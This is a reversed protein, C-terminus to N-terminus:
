LKGSFTEACRKGSIVAGEIGASIFAGACMIPGQTFEAEADKLSKYIGVTREHDVHEWRHLNVMDMEDKLDGMFPSVADLANRAIQSDDLGAQSQAWQETMHLAILGKGEPARDPYKNHEVAIAIVDRAESSPVMILAAPIDPWSKLGVHITLSPVAKIQEFWARRKGSISPAIKLAIEPALAIVAGDFERTAGDITVAVGNESPEVKEVCTNLHLNDLQSAIKESLAGMGGNVQIIKSDSFMKLLWVIDVASSVTTSTFMNLRIIPDVMFDHIERGFKRMAFSECNELDLQELKAMGEFDCRSWYKLLTPLLKILKLKAGFSLFGTKLGSGLARSLDLYHLKGARPIAMVPQVTHCIDGAGVADILELTKIYAPSLTIAGLDMTYGDKELSITRGGVEPNKEFVAADFGAKQLHYAASLGAMGAGIVAISQKDAVLM